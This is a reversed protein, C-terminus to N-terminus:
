STTVIGDSGKLIGYLSATTGALLNTIGGGRRLTISTIAATNSWLGAVLTQFAGTANNETVGDVSFSKNTSGTYNPIYISINTFTDATTNAANLAGIFGQTTSFSSAASGTGELSRESFSSTSGNFLIQGAPGTVVDTVRASFVVYLDTFDQPISTFEISAQATGLTKSEILKM